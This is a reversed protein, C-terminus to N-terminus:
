LTKDYRSLEFIQFCSCLVSINSGFCCFTGSQDRYSLLLSNSHSDLVIGQFCLCIVFLTQITMFDCLVGTSFHLVGVVVVVVVFSALYCHLHFFILM